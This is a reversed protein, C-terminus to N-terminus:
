YKEEADLRALLQHMLRALEDVEEGLASIDDQVEAQFEDLENAQADLSKKVDTRWNSLLEVVESEESVDSLSQDDSGAKQGDANFEEM